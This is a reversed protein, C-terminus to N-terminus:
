EDAADEAPEALVGAAELVRRTFVKWNLEEHVRRQGAEGLRQAKAPDRLLSVIAEALAAPSDPPVLLGTKEHQVADSVGGSHGAIVPKGYAHAESFVLGFGEVQGAEDEGTPLAFLTSLHYLAALEDDEVYGPCQVQGEIGLGTGHERCRERMPGRGVMVLQAQPFHELVEPFARVLCLHGKRPVFRGVALVVPGAELEYADRVRALMAASVPRAPPAGPFVTAIGDADVGFRELNRRTFDSIAVTVLGGRYIRRLLAHIPWRGEFKLFEYAYAFTVYPRKWWRKGLWALLGGHSVNVALVLDCEKFLPFSKLAMPLVRAWGLGYGKFRVVRVPEGDDFDAMGPFYPAVVTVEHGLAALERSVELTVSGIGGEIPPYDATLILVRM